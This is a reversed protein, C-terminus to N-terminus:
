MYMNTHLYVISFNDGIRQIHLAQLLLAMLILKFTFTPPYLIAGTVGPRGVKARYYQEPTMSIAFLEIRHEPDAGAEEDRRLCWQFQQVHVCLLRWFYQIKM